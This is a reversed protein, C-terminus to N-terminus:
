EHARAAPPSVDGLAASAELRLLTLERQRTAAGLRRSKARMAVLERRLAAIKDGLPRPEPSTAGSM